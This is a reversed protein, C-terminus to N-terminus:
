KNNGAAYRDSFDRPMGTSYLWVRFPEALNKGTNQELAARLDNFGVEKGRLLAVVRALGNRVPSEGYADELAIFFLAAKLAAIHRRPFPDYLMTTIISKEANPTGANRQVETEYAHLFQQIRRRRAPDGGNSEDVVITAYNPLGEGIGVAADPAPYMEVGFWSHALAQSIEQMLEDSQFGLALASPNVLAGGPFSAVASQNEEGSHARLEPSEVIHPRPINKDLSGFDKQLASWAAGIRQAAASPDSQLPQLTWFSAGSSGAVKGRPSSDSYVGAVIYAPLDNKRLEFRYEAEGGTKKRGTPTGGALVLFNDPVRVTYFTKPPRAPYPALVRNPPQPLPIWGRSGLHFNTAALTIRTGQEAPAVFSYDIQLSRREKRLWPPDCPLRLTNPHEQQYEVPLKEPTVEHSNWAIRLGTRGYIKEDPFIVDIYALDSLGSNQLTYSTRIRLEPPAGASFRVERSEALIQYGPALPVSCSTACLLLVVVPLLAGLSRSAIRIL